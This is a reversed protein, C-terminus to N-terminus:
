VWRPEEGKRSDPDVLPLIKNHFPADGFKQPKPQNRVIIKFSVGKPLKEKPVEEFNENM